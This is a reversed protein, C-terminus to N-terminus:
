NKSSDPKKVNLGTMSHLGIIITSTNHLLSSTAPALLGAAGSAILSGNFAMIFRYHTRIRRMMAMSLRRLYVLQELGALHSRPLYVLQELGGSAITIDAANERLPYKYLRHIHSKGSNKGRYAM